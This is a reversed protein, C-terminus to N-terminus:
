FPRRDGNSGLLLNIEQEDFVVDDGADWEVEGEDGDGGDGIRHAIEPELSIPIGAQRSLSSNPVVVMVMVMMTMMMMKMMMM